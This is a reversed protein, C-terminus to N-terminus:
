CPGLGSKRKRTGRLHNRWWVKLDETPRELDAFEWMQMPEATLSATQSFEKRLLSFSWADNVIHHYLLFLESRRGSFILCRTLASEELDWPRLGLEVFCVNKEDEQFCFVPVSPEPVIEQLLGNRATVFRQCRLASHRSAIVQFQRMLVDDDNHHLFSGGLNYAVSEPAAKWIAFLGAQGFSTRAFFSTPPRQRNVVPSASSSLNRVVGNISGDRLLFRVGLNINFEAQLLGNLQMAMLSTGGLELLTTDDDKPVTGLIEGFFRRVRDNGARVLQHNEPQLVLSQLWRRDAKGSPTLQITSVVVFKHPVEHKVVSSSIEERVQGESVGTELVVAACLMQRERDVFVAAELVGRCKQLAIEVARLDVRQGNVKVQEDMRGVFTLTCDEVDWVVVDGTVFLKESGNNSLFKDYLYSMKTSAAQNYECRAQSGCIALSPLVATLVKNNHFPRGLPIHVRKFITRATVDFSSVVVVTETPGYVNYVSKVSELLSKALHVSLAEGGILLLLGQPKFLIKAQSPTLFAASCCGMMLTREWSFADRAIILEGGSLVPWLRLFLSPDFSVSCSFLVSDQTSLQTELLVHWSMYSAVAQQSAMVAKPKGTSGSTYFAHFFDGKRKCVIADV